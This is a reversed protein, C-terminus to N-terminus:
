VEYLSAKLFRGWGRWEAMVASEGRMSAAIRSSMDFMPASVSPSMEFPQPASV